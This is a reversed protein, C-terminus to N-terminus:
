TRDVRPPFALEGGGSWLTLNPNYAPDNRLLHGWRERMYACERAFGEARPGTDAGRTLSEHHLMEAFPTWVARWGAERLRLCLDVDNFAIPLNQEDLGGVQVWAERRVAMCAGTVASVAHAVHLRGGHGPALRDRLKDAHGAVGDFGLVVGAHQIRGDPYLLKAGVAGVRDQVLQGVLEELWDTTTVECDDNLLCIVDGDCRDAAFNNLGSYNFAREDRILKVLNEYGRLLDLVPRGISGNDIVLVEFNPYATFQFVSSLCRWLLQGDRTPVIISVKPATAPLDWRVRHWGSLPNTIVTGPGDVRSLHEEVAKHGALRAYPKASIGSATSATHARWHYLVRPVHVVQSPHLRESVRLSLDWDQSGEFGERYGGVRNVLDRRYCVLHGLYNQGLLLLPDFDPKFNPSHRRGDVEMKDEDSFVMGAEPHEALTLVIHALAHPAFEDDHDMPIVWEGHAIELASNSSASIHGNDRRRVVRIREDMGEYEALVTAVAPDTSKDDAICLEWGEYVQERVSDLARRLLPEPTNYVPMVISVLPPDSITGLRASLAAREDEGFQDFREVWDSYTGAPTGAETAAAAPAAEGGGHRVPGARLRGYLRRLRRSYRFVKTAHLAALESSAAEARARLEPVEAVLENQRRELLEIERGALRAEADRRLELGACRELLQQHEIALANFRDALRDHENCAKLRQADITDRSALIAELEESRRALTVSAERLLAEYGGIADTLTVRAKRYLVADGSIYTADYSFDRVFGHHGFLRAWYDPPNVNLHSRDTVDDATSSLLVADAHACLNAVAAPALTPPLHELVEICTILDYHEPLPSLVSGVSCYPRVDDPVQKIAWSSVDIGYADVGRDRLAEVLMGIACGADMATRPQVYDVVESAIRGFFRQWHPEDRDYPLSPLGDSGYNTRYYAEDYFAATADILSDAADFGDEEIRLLLNYLAREEDLHPETAGPSGSPATESAAPLLRADHDLADLPRIGGVGSAAPWPRRDVTCGHRQFFAATRVSAEVLHAAMSDQGLLLVDLGDVASLAGRNYRDWLAGALEPTIRLRSTMDAVAARATQFSWVILPPVDLLAAWYGALVSLRPDAWIWEIGGAHGGARPRLLQSRDLAARAQERQPLVLRALERPSTRPLSTWAGGAKGLLLENMEGLPLGPRDPASVLPTVGCLEGIWQAVRELHDGCAGVVLVGLGAEENTSM